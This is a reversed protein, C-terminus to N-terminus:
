RKAQAKKDDKVPPPPEAPPAPPQPEAVILLNDGREECYAVADPHADVVGDAALQKALADPMEALTDAPVIFDAITIASLVRVKM